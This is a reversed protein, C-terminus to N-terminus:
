SDFRGLEEFFSLEMPVFVYFCDRFDIVFFFFVCYEVMRKFFANQFLNLIRWYFGLQRNVNALPHLIVLAEFIETFHSLSLLELSLSKHRKLWFFTLGLEVDPLVKQEVRLFEVTKLMALHLYLENIRYTPLEVALFTNFLIFNPSWVVFHKTLDREVYL